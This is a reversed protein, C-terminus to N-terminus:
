IKNFLNLDKLFQFVMESSFHEGEALIFKTRNTPSLNMSKPFRTRRAEATSPCISFLHDITLPEENCFICTPANTKNMLHAHTINTHGCRLRCLIVEFKRQTHSSSKWYALTPKIKFLKNQDQQSWFQQWEIRVCRKIVPYIDKYYIKYNSIPNRISNKAIRDVMENGPIGVHAPVWCFTVKKYVSHCRRLWDQIEKM